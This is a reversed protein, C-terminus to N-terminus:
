QGLMKKNIKVYYVEKAKTLTDLYFKFLYNHENRVSIFFSFNSCIVTSNDYFNNVVNYKDLVYKNKFHNKAASIKISPAIQKMCNVKDNNTDSQINILYYQRERYDM